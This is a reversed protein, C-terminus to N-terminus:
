LEEPKGASSTALKRSELTGKNISQKLVAHSGHFAESSIGRVLGFRGRIRWSPVMSLARLRDIREASTAM